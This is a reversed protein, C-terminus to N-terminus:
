KIGETRSDRDGQLKKKKARFSYKKFPWAIIM